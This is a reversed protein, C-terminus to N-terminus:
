KATSTNNTAVVDIERVYDGPEERYDATPDGTGTRAYTDPFGGTFNLVQKNQSAGTEGNDFTLDGNFEDDGDVRSAPSSGSGGYATTLLNDNEVIKEFDLNTSRVKPIYDVPTRSGLEARLDINNSISVTVGQVLNYTTGGLTLSGDAFMLPDFSETVQSTLSAPTAEAEDAYAGTLSVNVQGSDSTELRCDSVVCGKLTRENGTADVPLVIQMSWPIQGDFTHTYPGTGSTTAEHVVGRWFWPNSLTFEVGWTGSFSEAIREAAERSGPNFMNVPNNDFAAEPFSVNYGFTKATSDGTSGAFNHGGSGDTEWYYVGRTDSGAAAPM